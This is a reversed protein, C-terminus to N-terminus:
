QFPDPEPLRDREPVAAQDLNVIEGVQRFVTARYARPLEELIDIVRGAAILAPHYVMAGGTRRDPPKRGNAPAEPEAPKATM